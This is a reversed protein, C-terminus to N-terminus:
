GVESLHLWEPHKEAHAAIEDLVAHLPVCPQWQWTKSALTSDLVMWPVDFLRPQTNSAVEHVGFREDCWATLQRLSMSNDVGGSVNVVSPRAGSAGSDIQKLVLAALDSPHLCDRVQHGTGAFGIYSLGRRRLHANIWFSFIGQTAHGFQGAGALVGCRNIWVPLGFVHGYELAIMESALKSTGYLSLPPTTSFDEAIGADSLGPISVELDPWFAGREVRVPMAALPPISYVRSTSLLVLGAGVTKCHEVLNITGTLNNDILQRSSTRGDIGALVSPNAAADIIWDVAGCAEVDTSLRVDGHVVNIGLRALAHRNTESGSRSFNDIGIIELSAADRRERFYRALASGVFGCVGTILVRM